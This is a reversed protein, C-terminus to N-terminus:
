YPSFHLTKDSKEVWIRAQEARHNVTTVVVVGSSPGKPSAAGDVHHNHILGWEGGPGWDTYFEGFNYQAYKQPHQKWDPDNMWIAYATEYNKNELATFFKDVRHELPWYRFWWGFFAVLLVVTIISSIWIRRRREKAPDYPKAEFITTTM